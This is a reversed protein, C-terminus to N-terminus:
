KGCLKLPYSNGFTSIQLVEAMQTFVTYAMCKVYLYKRSKQVLHFYERHSLKVTKPINENSYIAM